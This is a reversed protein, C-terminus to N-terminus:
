TPNRLESIRIQIKSESFAWGACWSARCWVLNEISEFMIDIALWQYYGLSSRRDYRLVRTLVYLSCKFSDRASWQSHDANLHTLIRILLGNANDYRDDSYAIHMALHVTNAWLM